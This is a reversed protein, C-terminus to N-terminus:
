QIILIRTGTRGALELRVLYTGVPLNDIRHSQEGMPLGTLWEAHVTRGQLDIVTLRANGPVDLVFGVQVTQQAPNPWLAFDLLQDKVDAADLPVTYTIYGMPPAPLQIDTYIRYEGQKLNIFSTTNTVDLSDGTFYEYWKGTHQFAPNVNAAGLTFNGLVVANMATNNLRISKTGSSLSMLFDTSNFTNPYTTKLGNVSRIVDYLARRRPDNYYDWRIPKNDLRCNNCLGSGACRNICFEYGLEGFQWSMKPGPVMTLFVHALEMRKLATTTDKIVYNNLQNTAITLERMQREEDHSEMYGVVGPKTFGRQKYSLGSFNGSQGKNANVFDYHHNGWVMMGYDTLEKEENNAAFHELIVYTQPHAAWVEDAMQKLIAVRSPDLNGWAGTNGLTNNQTFGKSLDFRFGDFGLETVWHNICRYMWNKTAQSEHNLDYGVNFDHKADPNAYPSNAAPKNTAADWYMRVLPSQSFAHNFVVDAIVAMGRLHAEDILRRLTDIPGYFKDVAMHYSPNYGWSQNGEFEQVPMLQIANIGLRKLYDLTDIVSRYSQTAVFDRVLLEYVILNTKDPRQWTAPDLQWPYPQQETQYYTVNGTTLGTPYAPKNPYNFAPIGPDDFQSLILESLPDAVVINGDIVYQYTLASGPTAPIDIWFYQGDPSKKMQNAPLPQWNSFNGVVFVFNKNPAQLKLRVVELGDIWTAGLRTNAPVAEVLSLDPVVYSFGGTGTGLGSVEDIDYIIEHFGPETTLAYDFDNAAGFSQLLNGNDSLNMTSLANAAVRVQIQSGAAVLLSQQAPSVLKHLYGANPAYVDAYIDTGGVDKGELSGTANRFVMAIKEVTQGAPVNYYDTVSPGIQYTFVNPMGPVPTLKWDANAQGWTTQVYKWDSLSTSLNTIVGTHIYIDCNCAALGGTGQSADFYITVADDATPFTPVTWVVQAFSLSSCMALLLFVFFRSLIM